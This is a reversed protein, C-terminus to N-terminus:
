CIELYIKSIRVYHDKYLCIHENAKHYWFKGPIILVFDSEKIEIIAEYVRIKWVKDKIDYMVPDAWLSAKIRALM